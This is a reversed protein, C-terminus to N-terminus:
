TWKPRLGSRTVAMMLLRTKDGRGNVVAGKETLATEKTLMNM